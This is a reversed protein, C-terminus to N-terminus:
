NPGGFFLKLVPGTGDTGKLYEYCGSEETEVTMLRPGLVHWFYIVRNKDTFVGQAEELLLISRNHGGKGDPEDFGFYLDGAEFRQKLDSPLVGHSSACNLFAVLNEKSICYDSTENEFGSVEDGKPPVLENAFGSSETRRNVKASYEPTLRVTKSKGISQNVCVWVGSRISHVHYFTAIKLANPGVAIWKYIVGNRDTFFGECTKEVLEGKKSGDQGDSRALPFEFDGTDQRQQIEPPLADFSSFPFSQAASLFDIFNERSIRYSSIRLDNAFSTVEDSRPCLQPSAQISDAKTTTVSLALAFLLHRM